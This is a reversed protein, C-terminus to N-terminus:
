QKEKLKFIHVQATHFDRQNWTFTSHTYQPFPTSSLTADLLATTYQLTQNVALDNPWQVWENWDNKPKKM